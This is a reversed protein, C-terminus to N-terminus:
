PASAPQRLDYLRYGSGDDVLKYNADLEQQLDPQRNFQNFATILFYDVGDTMSAFREAFDKGRGRLEALEQEGTIPWLNVYRWGFYMLPYGYDQTLAIISGDEPLQSAIGQWYAPDTRYNAAFLDSRTVWAPYLAAALLVGAFAIQWVRPQLSIKELILAAVPALSLALLPTLQLHYYDHTYMQYPLTLGYILYGLWLGALFVRARPRSILVGALGLFLIGLGFLNQLMGLWRVYLAPDLLLQLLSITWATVYETIRGSPSFALYYILSPLVMLGAMSWVQASKVARKFGLTSLVIAIAGGAIMYAIVVKVLAAMGAALGALIVWRWRPSESWRYIGYLFLIFWMVMGPDPQFSRSAQAAFPLLLYFGTAIVAGDVSTMRRALAFLAIGGILWFLTTYLRSVWLVEHGIARYTVAVLGELIPPEYQGVYRLFTAATARAQPDANPEMQYYLGRAVIANRLQRTGHFDLPPDTLDILRVVAGLLFIGVLVLALVTSSRGFYTARAPTQLNSGPTTPEMHIETNM